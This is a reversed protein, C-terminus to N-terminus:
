QYDSEVPEVSKLLEFLHSLRLYYLITNDFKGEKDFGPNCGDNYLWFRLIESTKDDIRFAIDSISMSSIISDSKGSFVTKYDRNKVEVFSFEGGNRIEVCYPMLYKFMSNSM